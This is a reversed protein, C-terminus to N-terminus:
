PPQVPKFAPNLREVFGGQSQEGNVGLFTGSIPHTAAPQVVFVGDDPQRAVEEEGLRSYPRRFAFLASLSTPM